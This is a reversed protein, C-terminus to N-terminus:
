VLLSARQLLLTDGTATLNAMALPLRTWNGAKCHRLFTTSNANFTRRTCAPGTGKSACCHLLLGESGPDSPRVPTPPSPATFSLFRYIASERKQNEEISDVVVMMLQKGGRSAMLTGPILPITIPLSPVCVRQWQDLLSGGCNNEPHRNGISNKLNVSNLVSKSQLVVDIGDLEFSPMILRERPSPFACQSIKKMLAACKYRLFHFSNWHCSIQYFYYYYNNLM